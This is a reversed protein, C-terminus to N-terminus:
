LTGYINKSHSSAISIDITIYAIFFAQSISVIALDENIRFLELIKTKYKKLYNNTNM